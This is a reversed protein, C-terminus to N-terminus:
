NRRGARARQRLEDMFNLLFIAHNTEKRDSPPSIMVVRKRDPMLDYCEVPRANWPRPRSASFSEGSISYSASVIEFHPLGLYFLETGRRSWIPMIGGTVSIQWPGGSGPFPRVFIEPTGSRATVYAIWRGDPSFSAEDGSEVLQERRGAKPHAADSWDLPATWIGHADSYFTLRASGPAVSWPTVDTGAILQQPTGSGDARLCYIGPGPTQATTSFILYKSDATWIANDSNANLLTARSLRQTAFDYTAIETSPGEEVSVSLRSGDPSVRVHTYRGKPLPLPELNGQDDMIAVPRIRDDPNAAVYVFMGSRSFTYGATGTGGHFSVDELVPVSPGTLELRDPDMPAAFLVDKHWYVLHGSPLFRPYAGVGVLRKRKGTQFSQADISGEGAANITNAFLVAHAGPLVQPYRHTNENRSKDLVTLVEPTGGSSAVRVLGDLNRAAFVINDDDGWSGERPSPADCLAIPAGGGADMKKLKKDAFFAIWKGDPSFFPAEAGETGALPQARAQDLRLISLRANVLQQGTIFVLRSGDPSLAMTAGRRPTLAADPGLDVNLRVLSLPAPRAPARLWAVAVAAVGAVIAAAAIIKWRWAGRV